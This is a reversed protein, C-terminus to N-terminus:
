ETGVTWSEPPAKSAPGIPYAPMPEAPITRGTTLQLWGGLMALAGGLLAVWAGAHVHILHSLLAGSGAPSPFQFPGVSIDLAGPPSEIRYAALMAAVLGGALVLLAKGNGTSTTPAVSSVLVALGVLLLVFRITHAGQWGSWTLTLGGISGLADSLQGSLQAPLQGAVGRVMDALNLSYWTLFVSVALASGGAGAVLRGILGNDEAMM